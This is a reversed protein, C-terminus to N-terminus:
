PTKVGFQYRHSPDPNACKRIQPGTQMDSGSMSVMGVLRQMAAARSLMPM